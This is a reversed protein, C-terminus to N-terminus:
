SPRQTLRRWAKALLARSSVPTNVPCDMVRAIHNQLGAVNRQAIVSAVEGALGGADESLSADSIGNLASLLVQARVAAFDQLGLAMSKTLHVNASNMNGQAYWYNGAVFHTLCDNQRLLLELTMRRQQEDDAYFFNRMSTLYAIKQGSKTTTVAEALERLNDDLGLQILEGLADVASASIEERAIDERRFVMEYPITNFYGAPLKRFPAMHVLHLGDHLYESPRGIGAKDHANFSLLLGGPALVRAAWRFYEDVTESDMEQFSMTNIILHYPGALNDIAPPLAFNLTGPLPAIPATPACEVFRPQRDPLTMALYTSSLCLNEPLDIITYSAIDCVQHLQSACAGWGAGIECVNLPHSDHGYRKALQSIRWTTGANLVYSASLSAEGCSYILPAGLVPERLRDIFDSPTLRLISKCVEDFERRKQEPTAPGTDGIGYVFNGRRFALFEGVDPFNRRDAFHEAWFSSVRAAPHQECLMLNRGIYSHFQELTRSIQDSYTM